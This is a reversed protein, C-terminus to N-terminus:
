PTHAEWAEWGQAVREAFYGAAFRCSSSMAGAEWEERTFRREYLLPDTRDFGDPDIVNISSVAANWEGITKREKGDQADESPLVRNYENYRVSM